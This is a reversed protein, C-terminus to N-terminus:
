PRAASSRCAPSCARRAVRGPVCTWGARTSARTRSPRPRSCSRSCSPAPTRSPPGAAACRHCSAPTAARCPRASPRCRAPSPASTSWSRSPPSGRVPSSSVEAPTNDAELLRVLQADVDAGTAVGHGILAGRLARVIWEPHSWRAALHDPATDDAGVRDLWEERSSESVKRLVANVFGSAGAGNVMRALGVTESVAAHVPVRMALVQHAGLRLTDLVAPDVQDLPRETSRAIVADYFGRWRLTGYTLETAFAADRGHLQQERLLRPLALNAYGGDAVERLVTYAALRPADATRSRESPRQGSYVRRPGGAGRAGSRTRGKHDRQDRQDRDRRDRQDGQETM